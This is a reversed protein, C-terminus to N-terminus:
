VSSLRRNPSPRGVSEYTWLASAVLQYVHDALEKEKYIETGRPYSFEKAIFRAHSVGAASLAPVYCDSTSNANIALM